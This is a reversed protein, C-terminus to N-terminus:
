MATSRGPTSNRKELKLKIYKRREFYKRKRNERLKENNRTRQYIRRLGSFSLGDHSVAPM